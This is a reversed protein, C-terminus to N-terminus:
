SALDDPAYEAWTKPTEFVKVRVLRAPDFRAELLRWIVVAINEVTPNLDRFEETDMNLHKHDFRAIVRDQVTREFAALSFGPGATPATGALTVEIVYNHGHGNESNCKGFLQLNEQKSLRPNHLRHSASFEFQQTLLLMPMGRREISHRLFPTVQLDLGQMRPESAFHADAIDWATRLLSAASPQTGPASAAVLAPLIQQRILRDIEVISLLYGSAPDSDGELTIGLILYPAITEASPWGGWSNTIRSALVDAQDAAPLTFRCARTLRLM